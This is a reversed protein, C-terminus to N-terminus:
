TRLPEQSREPSVRTSLGLPGPCRRGLPPSQTLLRVHSCVAGGQEAESQEEGGRVGAVAPSRAPFGLLVGWLVPQAPGPQVWVTQAQVPSAPHSVSRSCGPTPTPAERPPRHLSELCLRTQRPDASGRGPCDTWVRRRTWSANRATAEARTTLPEDMIRDLATLTQGRVVLLLVGAASVTGHCTQNDHRTCSRQGDGARSLEPCEACQSSVPGPRTRLSWVHLLGTDSATFPTPFPFCELGVERARLRSGRPESDWARQGRTLRRTTM